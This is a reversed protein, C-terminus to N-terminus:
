MKNMKVDKTYQQHHSGISHKIFVQQFLYSQYFMTFTETFSLLCTLRILIIQSFLLVIIHLLHDWKCVITEWNNIYISTLLSNRRAETSGTLYPQEFIGPGYLWFACFLHIDRDM